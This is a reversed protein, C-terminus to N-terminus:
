FFDFETAIDFYIVSNEDRNQLLLWSKSIAYSFTLSTSINKHNFSTKLGGGLLRESEEEDKAIVFGYHPQRLDV